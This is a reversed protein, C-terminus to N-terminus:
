EVTYLAAFTAATAGIDAGRHLARLMTNDPVFLIDNAALPRDAINGRLMAHLNILIEDRGNPAAPNPRLLVAKKDKAYPSLSGALALAKLVTMDQRSDSLVFGGARNVAGLIYVVGARRVNVRDGPYVELNLKPDGTALLRRLNITVTGPTAPARAEGGGEAEEGLVRRAAEGRTITVVSAADDAVGGAQTLLELLSIPGFLPYIQPNRVAGAVAVSHLRSERITIGIQPHSLVGAEICKQAIAQAAQRTTLGAVPVPEPLLPFDVKGTVSVRYERTMQDVDFVQIFLLDTPSILTDEGQRALLDAALAGGATPASTQQWAASLVGPVLFLGLLGVLLMGLLTFGM